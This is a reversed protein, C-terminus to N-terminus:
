HARPVLLKAVAEGMSFTFLFNVLV